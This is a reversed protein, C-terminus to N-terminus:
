PKRGGGRREELREDRQYKGAIEQQKWPKHMVVDNWDKFDAPPKWQRTRGSLSVHRGLETLTAKEPPLLVDKGGM